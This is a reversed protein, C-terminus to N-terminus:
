NPTVTPPQHLRPKYVCCPEEDMFNGTAAYARARCGLCINRFECYGCKGELNGSDRLLAFLESKDWIEAFPQTRLDGAKVPLYGCPYVEGKHSIFCVGSGALCGRTIASMEPHRSSMGHATRVPRNGNGSSSLTVGQRKEELQIQRRVRFYHPACTAKLEIRAEKEREYFWHLIEEYEEAPIMQQAAIQVGCGVPVLLFTHLADAGIHLALDYIAPLQHANHRAVTTNLQMSMGLEKLHHFGAMMREFSGPIGRFADHTAADAGDLSMAVRVIGADVIKRALDPTIMTGNTALAVKIRRDLAYEAIELVDRRFLPEGGSLVLILPAFESIQDIIAKCAETGLDDPSMLETASARCHICRLNCGTTLEWFVLRPRYNM